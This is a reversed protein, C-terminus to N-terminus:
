QVILYNWAYIVPTGLATGNSTIILQTTSTTAFVEQGKALNATAKNAPILIVTPASTYATNFSLTIVTDDTNPLTASTVSIKGAVDTCNTLTYTAGVGAGGGVTATPATTNGIIHLIQTHANLQLTQASPTAAMTGNIIANTRETALDARAQNDIRLINSGTERYGAYCGLFNNGSGTGNAAGGAYNGLATNNGGSTNVALAGNGIATNNYRAGANLQLANAGIAVNYAGSTASKMAWYGIATNNTGDAALLASTGIGVSNVGVTNSYMASSGIAVNNNGSTNYALAGTGIAMNNHGTTNFVLSQYGVGVNNTGSTTTSMSQAGLAVNYLGSTISVMSNKGLNVNTSNEVNMPLGDMLFDLFNNRVLTGGSASLHVADSYMGRSNANTYSGLLSYNDIYVYNNALAYNKLQSVYQSMPYTTVTSIDGQSFLVISCLPM